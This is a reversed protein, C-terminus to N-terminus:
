KAGEAPRLLCTLPVPQKLVRWSGLNNSFVGSVWAARM